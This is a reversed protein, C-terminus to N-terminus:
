CSSNGCVARGVASMAFGDLLQSEIYLLALLLFNDKSCAPDRRCADRVTM